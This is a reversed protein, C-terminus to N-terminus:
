TTDGNRAREIQVLGLAARELILNLTRLDGALHVDGFEVRVLDRDGRTSRSDVVRVLDATMGLVSVMVRPDPAAISTM